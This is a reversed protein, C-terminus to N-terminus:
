FVVRLISAQTGRWPTRRFLKVHLSKLLIAQVALSETQQALMEAEAPFAIGKGPAASDAMKEQSGEM